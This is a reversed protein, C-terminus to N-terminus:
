PHIDEFRVNMIPYKRWDKYDFHWWEASFVTFGEAEMARRLLKRHWRQSSTGGPYDPYARDSFEDYGSVMEIPKGTRLDYLTLDIACGRNHRSGNAPNAVFIRKDEPTAEWFMKTVYWPRYSDHILLGYGQQKLRRNARVLAAAAPRQAFARGEKYFATGVFNNTTAYRMDLKITPDLKAVEVLDPQLFEGTERPPTAALAERVLEDAPRLPTIKFTSGDEPAISRRALSVGGLLVATGRGNPGRSFVVREGSYLGGDPLRYTDPSEETLPYDFFWHVLLHLRGNEERAYVINFDPGYEGVLGRLGEPAAVPKPASVRSLTDRDIVIRDGVPLIREGFALRDDAVLTDGLSRLQLWVEGDARHYLLRGNREDL